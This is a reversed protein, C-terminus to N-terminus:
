FIVLNNVIKTKECQCCVSKERIILDHNNCIQNIQQLPKVETLDSLCDDCIGKYLKVYNFVKDSNNKYNWDYVSQEIEDESCDLILETFRKGDWNGKFFKIWSDGQMKEDVNNNVSVMFLDADPFKKNYTKMKKYDDEIKKETKKNLNKNKLEIISLVKWDSDSDASIDVLAMDAYGGIEPIHYESFLRLNNKIFFSEKLKKIIKFYLRCKLDSEMYYYCNNYDDLSNEEWIEVLTNKFQKKFDEM